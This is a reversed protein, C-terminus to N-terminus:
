GSSLALASAFVGWLGENVMDGVVLGIFFPIAARFAKLGGYRLLCTKVLWGFMFSAWNLHMGWSNAAMYGIPHLPWWLFRSRLWALALAVSGGAGMAAVGPWSTGTPNDLSEKLNAYSWYVQSGVMSRSRHGIPMMLFGRDYYAHLTWAFAIPITLLAAWLLLRGAAPGRAGADGAIKFTELQCAMVGGTTPGFYLWRTSYLVTLDGGTMGGSGLLTVMVEDMMKPWLIVGMSLGAEGRIRAFIVFYGLMLAVLLLAIQLRMGALALWGVMLAIGIALGAVAFRPTAFEEAGSPDPEGRIAARFMRRLHRRAGWLAAFALAYAAGAGQAYIAPYQNSYVDPVDTAGFYIASVDQAKTLVFFVWASLSIETPLLAVIGILWPSFHLELTGLGTWPPIAVDKQFDLRLLPKLPLDPFTPAYLHLSHLMELSLALAFGGWFLPTRLLPARGEADTSTLTLPIQALPFSLRESELWQRRLLLMACHGTLFLAGLLVSWAVAPILWAGWPVRGGTGLFFGRVVEPDSPGFWGPLWEHFARWGADFYYPAVTHPVLFGVTYQHAIPGSIMAACYALLLDGRSLRLRSRLAAPLGGALLTWLFLLYTPAVPPSSGGVDAALARITMVQTMWVMLVVM